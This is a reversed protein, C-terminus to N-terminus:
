RYSPCYLQTHYNCLFLNTSHPPFSIYLPPRHCASSSLLHLVSPHALHNWPGYHTHPGSKQLSVLLLSPSQIPCPPTHLTQLNPSLRHYHWCGGSQCTSCLHLVLAKWVMHYWSPCSSPITSGVHQQSSSWVLHLTSSSAWLSLVLERSHTTHM